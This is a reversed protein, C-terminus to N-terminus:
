STSALGCDSSARCTCCELRLPTTRCAANGSTLRHPRSSRKRTRALYQRLLVLEISVNAESRPGFSKERSHACGIQVGATSSHGRKPAPYNRIPEPRKVVTRAIHKRDAPTRRSTLRRRHALLRRQKKKDRQLHLARSVRQRMLFRDDHARSDTRANKKKRSPAL